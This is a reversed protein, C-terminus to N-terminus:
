QAWLRDAARRDAQMEVDLVHVGHGPLGHRGARLLQPRDLVLEVAVPGAGDLIGEAMDPVDRRVLFVQRGVLQLSPGVFGHLLAASTSSALQTPTCDLARRM